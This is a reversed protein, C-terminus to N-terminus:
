EDGLFKFNVIETNQVSDKVLKQIDINKEAFEIDKLRSKTSPHRPVFRTCCDQYPMISTEFTGIRKALEIIETKDQCILPRLILKTSASQIVKINELTQSAVQGVDEGTILTEIKNKNAIEEAIRLMMRKYLIVRYKAPINLLVERQVDSFPSLYLKINFQFNTLIKM